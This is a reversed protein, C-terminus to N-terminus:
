CRLRMAPEEPQLRQPTNDAPASRSDLRDGQRRAPLTLTFLFVRELKEIKVTM